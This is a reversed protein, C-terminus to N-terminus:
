QITVGYLLMMAEFNKQGEGPSLLLIMTNFDNLDKAGPSMYTILENARAWIQERYTDLVIKVAEKETQSGRLAQSLMDPYDMVYYHFKKLWKYGNQFNDSEIIVRLLQKKKNVRDLEPYLYLITDINSQFKKIVYPIITDAIFAKMQNQMIPWNRSKIEDLQTSNMASVPLAKKLKEIHTKFETPYGNPEIIFIEGLNSDGIDYSIYWPTSCNKTKVSVMYYWDSPDNPPMVRISKMSIVQDKWGNDSFFRNMKDVYFNYQTQSPTEGTSNVRKQLTIFYEASTQAKLNCTVSAFLLVLFYILNRKM